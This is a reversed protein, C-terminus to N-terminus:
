EGRWNRGIMVAILLAIDKGVVQWLNLYVVSEKRCPSQYFSGQSRLNRKSSQYFQELFWGTESGATNSCAMSFLFVDMM